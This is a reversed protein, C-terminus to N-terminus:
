ELAPGVNRRLMVKRITRDIEAEVWDATEKGAQDLQFPNCLVVDGDPTIEESALLVDRIPEFIASGDDTLFDLSKLYDWSEQSVEEKRGHALALLARFHPLRKPEQLWEFHVIDRLAMRVDVEKGKGPGKKLPLSVKESVCRERLKEKGKAGEETAKGSVAVAPLTRGVTEQHSGIDEDAQNSPPGRTGSPEPKEEGVLFAVVAGLIPGFPGLASMVAGLIGNAAAGGAVTTRTEGSLTGEQHPTQQSPDQQEKSSM